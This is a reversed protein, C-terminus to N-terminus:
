EKKHKKSKKSSSKKKKHKKEKKKKEHKKEKVDLAENITKRKKEDQQDNESSYDDRKRKREPVVTSSRMTSPNATEKPLDEESDEDSSSDSNESNEGNVKNNLPNRCQYTLHGLMGCRKCGGRSEVGSLNSIRALLLLSEAQLDKKEKEELSEAENAAYPDYGITKSWMDNMKLAASSSVRNNHPMKSRPVNMRKVKHLQKFTIRKKKTM